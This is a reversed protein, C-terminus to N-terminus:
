LDGGSAESPEIHCQTCCRLPKEIQDDCAGDWVHQGSHALSAVPGEDGEGAEAEGHKDKNPEQNWLGLHTIEIKVIKYM